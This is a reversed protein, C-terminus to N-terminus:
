ERRGLGSVAEVDAKESIVRLIPRSSTESSRAARRQMTEEEDDSDWPTGYMVTAYTACGALMEEVVWSAVAWLLEGSTEVFQGVNWLISRSALPATANEPRLPSTQQPRAPHTENRGGSLCTFSSERVRRSRETQSRPRAHLLHKSVPM